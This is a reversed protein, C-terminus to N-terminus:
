KQWMSLKQVRCVPTLGIDPSHPNRVMVPVGTKWRRTSLWAQSHHSHAATAALATESATPGTSNSGTAAARRGRSATAAPMLHCRGAAAWAHRSTPAACAVAETASVAHAITAITVGPGRGVRRANSM